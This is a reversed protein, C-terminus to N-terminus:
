EKIIKKKLNTKNFDYRCQYPFRVFNESPKNTIPDYPKTMEYKSLLNVEVRFEDPYFADWDYVALTAYIGDIRILGSFLYDDEKLRPNSPDGNLTVGWLPSMNKELKWEYIYYSSGLTFAPDLSPYVLREGYLVTEIAGDGDVDIDYININWSPLHIGAIGANGPTGMGYKFDKYKQKYHDLIPDNWDDTVIDPKIFEFKVTQIDPMIALCDTVANKYTLEKDISLKNKTLYDRIKQRSADDGAHRILLKRDNNYANLEIKTKAYSPKACGCLLGMILVVFIQKKM